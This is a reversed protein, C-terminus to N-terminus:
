RTLRWFWVMKMLVDLGWASVTKASLCRIMLASEEELFWSPAATGLVGDSIRNCVGFLFFREPYRSNISDFVSAAEPSISWCTMAMVSLVAPLLLSVKYM